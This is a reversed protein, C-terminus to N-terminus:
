YEDESDLGIGALYLYRKDGKEWEERDHVSLKLDIGWAETFARLLPIEASEKLRTIELTRLGQLPTPKDEILKAFDHKADGVLSVWELKLHALSHLERIIQHLAGPLFSAGKIHLHQLSSPSTPDGHIFNALASADFSDADDSDLSFTECGESEDVFGDVGFSMFLDVLNPFKILKLDQISEGIVQGLHLRRLKPLSVGNRNSYLPMLAGHMHDNFVGSSLDIELAELNESHQLTTFVASAPISPSDFRLQLNTLGHLLEAPIQLPWKIQADILSDSDAHNNNNDDPYGPLHLSFSTISGPLFSFAKWSHGRAKRDIWGNWTSAIM